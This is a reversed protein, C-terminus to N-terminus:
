RLFSGEWFAKGAGLNPAFEEGTGQLGQEADKTRQWKNVAIEEVLNSAGSMDKNKCELQSCAAMAQIKLTQSHLIPGLLQTPNLPSRRSQPSPLTQLKWM